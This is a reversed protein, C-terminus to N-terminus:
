NNRSQILPHNLIFFIFLALILGLVCLPEQKKIEAVKLLLIPKLKSRFINYLMKLDFYFNLYKLFTDSTLWLTFFLVLGM